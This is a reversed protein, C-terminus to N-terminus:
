SKTRKERQKDMARWSMGCGFSPIARWCRQSFSTVFKGALRNTEPMERWYYFVTCVSNREEDSGYRRLVDLGKTYEQRLVLRELYYSTAKQYEYQAQYDNEDPSEKGSPVPFDRVGLREMPLVCSWPINKLANLNKLALERGLAFTEEHQPDFVLHVNKATLGKEIMETAKEKGVLQVHRSRPHLPFDESTAGVLETQFVEVPDGGVM